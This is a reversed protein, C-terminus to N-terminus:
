EVNKQIYYDQYWREHISLVTKEDKEVLAQVLSVIQENDQLRIEQQFTHCFNNIILWIRYLLGNNQMTFLQKFLQQLTETKMMFEQSFHQDAQQLATTLCVKELVYKTEVLDSKAKSDQLLFTALIDILQHDGVEKIFTGEGRRTEILGLLELARLAERVSSRGANLREALERESPIKDGTKLQDSVMLQRIQKLIEVYVKSRENMM